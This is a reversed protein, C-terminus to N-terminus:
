QGDGNDIRDNVQDFMWAIVGQPDSYTQTWCGHGVGQLESYRPDGGLRRIADIMERTADVPIIDDEDGHVAWFPIGVLREASTVDGGGCCPVVAAFLAPRRAALYWSGYGGMSYGTLYIRRHDVPYSGMVDDLM